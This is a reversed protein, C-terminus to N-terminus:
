ENSECGLLCNTREGDCWPPTNDTDELCAEHDEECRVSCRDGESEDCAALLALLVGVVLLVALADRTRV